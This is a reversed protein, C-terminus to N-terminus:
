SRVVSGEPDYPPRTTVTAGLRRDGDAVTVSAGDAALAAPVWAMGLARGIRPGRRASTVQGAPRGSGDLVVAGEAPLPGDPLALGVLAQEAPADAALSLASRGVFDEARDLKVTWGM